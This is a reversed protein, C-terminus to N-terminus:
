LCIFCLLLVAWQPFFLSYDSKLIIKEKKPKEHQTKIKLTQNTKVRWIPKVGQSFKPKKNKKNLVKYIKIKQYLFLIKSFYYDCFVFSLFFLSLSFLLSGNFPVFNCLRKKTVSHRTCACRIMVPSFNKAHRHTRRKTSYTKESTFHQM